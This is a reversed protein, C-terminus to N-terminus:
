TNIHCNHDEAKYGLYCVNQGFHLYMNVKHIELTCFIIAQPSYSVLYSICFVVSTSLFNFVFSM